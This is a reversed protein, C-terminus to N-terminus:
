IPPPVSFNGHRRKKKGPLFFRHFIRSRFFTPATLFIRCQLVLHRCCVTLLCAVCRCCSLTLSLPLSLPLSLNNPSILFLLNDRIDRYIYAACASRTHCVCVKKSLKKREKAICSRSFLPVVYNYGTGTQKSNTSNPLLYKFHRHKRNFLHPFFAPRSERKAITCHHWPPCLVPEEVGCRRHQAWFSVTKPPQKWGDRM